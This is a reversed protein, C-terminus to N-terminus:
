GFQAGTLTITGAEYSASFGATSMLQVMLEAQDFPTGSQDLITGFGGKGLGYRFETEINNHIYEYVRAAFDNASLRGAGLSRALERFRARYQAGSMVGPINVTSRLSTASVPATEFYNNATDPDILPAEIVSVAPPSSNATSSVGISVILAALVVFRTRSRRLGARPMTYDNARVLYRNM